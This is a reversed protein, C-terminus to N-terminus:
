GHPVIVLPRQGNRLLELSVSGELVRRVVGGGQCGVVLLEARRRAAFRDLEAAVSGGDVVVNELSREPLQSVADLVRQAHQRQRASPTLLIPTLVPGAEAPLLREGPLVHVLILRRDMALALEAARVAPEIPHEDAPDIGCVVPGSGCPPTNSRAILVPCPGRRSLAGSVSSDLVNSLMGRRRSSVVVLAADHAAALKKIEAVPDGALVISEDEEGGARQLLKVGADHAQESLDDVKGSLPLAAEAPSGAGAAFGLPVRLRVAPAAVHVFLARFNGTRQMARGTAIVDQLHEDDAVACLIVRSGTRSAGTKRTPQKPRRNSGQTTNKM